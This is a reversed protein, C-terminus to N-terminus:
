KTLVKYSLALKDIQVKYDSVKMGDSRFDNLKEFRATLNDQEFDTLAQDALRFLINNEKSIHSILLDAYASMNRYIDDLVTLNGQKYLELNDTVGKVFLRGQDHEHLMVAVPGQVTSFGKGELAPFLLNEEKAHHLGDAYNKIIDIVEEIHKIEPPVSNMVSKMVDILRLIYVHDEELNRTATKM